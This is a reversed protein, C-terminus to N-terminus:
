HMCCHVRQRTTMLTLFAMFILAYLWECTAKNDDFDPFGNLDICVVRSMNAKIDGLHVDILVVMSWKAKINDFFAFILFRYLRIGCRVWSVM